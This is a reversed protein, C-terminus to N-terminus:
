ESDGKEIIEGYYNNRKLMLHFSFALDRLKKYFKNNFYGPYDSYRLTPQEMMEKFQAETYNLKKMFYERDMERMEKSPYPDQKLEELAAERTMEGYCILNSLHAKRKDINFKRPQIYGQTFRTYISEYHKGGYYKWGLKEEIEKMVDKKSYEIYNLINVTANKKILKFYFQDFISIRPFSKLKKTGFRKQINKILLWDRQGESESWKKSMIFETANNSGNIIYSLSHKASIKNLISIIGHDSPIEMGPISAKLFSKQLDKFEEWDIVHTYLDIGLKDLTKEINAVALESDWGNDLHVALPRLGLQKTLYAVYTSDVGGSVGILCDYDKNKGDKKIKEVIRALEAKKADTIKWAEKKKLYATCYQCCGKEDFLIDPDTSDMVCRNCIQYAGKNM